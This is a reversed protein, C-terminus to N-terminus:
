SYHKRSRALVAPYLKSKVLEYVEGAAEEHKGLISELEALKTEAFERDQINPLNIYVNLAASKLAGHAAAIAVGADSVLQSNGKEAVIKSLAIVEACASACALPASTAAKLALQIAARRAAKQEETEKPLRYADIVQAFARADEEIMAALQRRLEEAKALVERMEAEVELYNKKGITLNCVMSLCAAGMAGMISAVAGGGPTPAASALNDLFANLTLEQSM